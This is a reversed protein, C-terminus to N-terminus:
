GEKLPPSSSDKFVSKGGAKAVGGQRGRVEPHMRSGQANTKAGKVTLHGGHGREGVQSKAPASHSPFFKM